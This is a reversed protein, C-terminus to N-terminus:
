FEFQQLLHAAKSILDDFVNSLFDAKVVMNGSYDKVSYENGSMFEAGLSFRGSYGPVMRTQVPCDLM